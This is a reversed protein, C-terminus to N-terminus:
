EIWYCGRKWSFIEKCTGRRAVMEKHGRFRFKVKLCEDFGEDAEFIGAGLGGM